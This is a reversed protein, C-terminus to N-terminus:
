GSATRADDQPAFRRFSRQGDLTTEVAELSLSGKVRKAREPHRALAESRENLIVALAESRENLIVRLAESRDNLIVALAESRENLIVRLRRSRAGEGGV